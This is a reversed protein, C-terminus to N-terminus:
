RSSGRSWTSTAASSRGCSTCTAASCWTRSDLADKAPPAGAARVEARLEALESRMQRVEALVAEDPRAGRRRAAAQVFANTVAATTVALFSLGVLMVVAAAVRGAVSGPVVDGYGVTTITQLSWWFGATLSSINARDTLRVLVGGAITVAVTVIAIGRWAREFPNAALQEIWRDIRKRLRPLM